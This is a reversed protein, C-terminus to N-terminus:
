KNNMSNEAGNTLDDKDRISTPTSLTKKSTDEPSYSHSRPLWSASWQRHSGAKTEKMPYRWGCFVELWSQIRWIQLIKIFLIVLTDEHWSVDRGISIVIIVRMMVTMM